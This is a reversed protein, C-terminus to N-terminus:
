KQNIAAKQSLIQTGWRNIASELDELKFPKSIYDDMGAKLYQERVGSMANATMAIVVPRQEDGYAEIIKKTATLGDMEPMQIDMFILDYHQKGLLELAEKGDDALDISFGMKGLIGEIVTQNIMNDEAVMIKLPYREGMSRNFAFAEAKPKSSHVKQAQRDVVADIYFRFSSGEGVTSEVSVDGGMLNALKRTIALGLGVGGFKRSFSNDAQQFSDFITDLKDRAIGIGTDKVTFALDFHAKDELEKLWPDSLDVQIHISGKSTFKLANSVLNVLIQRIRTPDGQVFPPVKASIKYTLDLGKDDATTAFLALVEELLERIHLSRIELDLKGAEVRSYDLIDNLISLLNNSSTSITQVYTKQENSLHTDQLLRGMGIIGNMPTRIEHSMTALFNSKAVSAAEAAKKAEELNSNIRHLQRNQMHIVKNQSTLQDNARQKIRTQRYLTIVLIIILFLVIFSAYLMTRSQNTQAEWAEADKKLVAIELEKRKEASAFEIKAIQRDKEAASISNDLSYFKKLYITVSDLNSSADYAQYLLQYINRRLTDNPAKSEFRLGAQLFSVADEYALDQFYANGMHFLIRASSDQLVVSQRLADNYHYLARDLEGEAMYTHGINMLTEVQKKYDHIDEVITLAQDFNAMAQRTSDMALYIKGIENLIESRNQQNQFIEQIVLSRGFYELAKDYRKEAGYVRAIGEQAASIFTSDALNRAIDLTRFYLSHADDYKPIKEYMRGIHYLVDAKAVSDRQREAIDLAKQYYPIADAYRGLEDMSRVVKNLANKIQRTSGRDERIELAQLYFGLAEEHEEVVQYTNGLDLLADAELDVNKLEVTTQHAQHALEKAAQPNGNGILKYVYTSILEVQGEQPLKSVEERISQLDQAMGQLAGFYMLCGLWLWCM